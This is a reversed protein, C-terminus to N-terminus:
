CNRHRVKHCMHGAQNAHIKCRAIIIGCTGGALLIGIVCPDIVVGGTPVIRAIAIRIGDVMVSHRPPCMGTDPVISANAFAM